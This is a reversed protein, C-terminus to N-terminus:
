HHVFNWDGGLLAAEGRNRDLYSRIERLCASRARTSFGPDLHVVIVHLVDDGRRMRLALVRGRRIEAIDVTDLTQRFGRRIAIVVGGERSSFGSAACPMCTHYYVHSPPLFHLAAEIGRVEQIGVVDCSDLLNQLAVRKRHWRPPDTRLSGLLSASNWTALKLPLLTSPVPPSQAHEGRSPHGGGQPPAM